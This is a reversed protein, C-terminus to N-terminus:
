ILVKAASIVSKRGFKWVNEVSKRGFKQTFVVNKRGFKTFNVRKLTTIRFKRVVVKEDLEGEKFINSAVIWAYMCCVRQRCM